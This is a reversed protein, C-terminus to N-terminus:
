QCPVVGRDYNFFYAVVAESSEKPIFWIEIASNDETVSISKIENGIDHLCEVFVNELFEETPDENKYFLTYYNLDRCLLMYYKEAPKLFDRIIKKSDSFDSITELQMIATKNLDYLNLNLAVKKNDKFKKNTM